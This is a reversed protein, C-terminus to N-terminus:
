SFGFPTWVVTSGEVLSIMVYAASVVTTTSFREMGAIEGLGLEVTSLVSYRDSVTGTSGRTVAYLLYRVLSLFVCFEFGGPRGQSWV